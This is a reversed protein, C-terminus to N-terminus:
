DWIKTEASKKIIILYPKKLFSINAELTTKSTAISHIAM